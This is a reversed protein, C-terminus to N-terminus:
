LPSSLKAKFVEGFRGCIMVAGLEVAMAKVEPALGEFKPSASVKVAVTIGCDPPLGSVPETFKTSLKM